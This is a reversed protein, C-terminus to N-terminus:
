ASWPPSRTSLSSSSLRAIGNEILMRQSYRTVLEVPGLKRHKTLLIAPEELGPALPLSFFRFCLLIQYVLVDKALYSLQYLAARFLSADPTRNGGQGGCELLSLLLWFM